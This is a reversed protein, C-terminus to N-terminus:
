ILAGRGGKGLQKRRDRDRHGWRRASKPTSRKSLLNNRASPDTLSQSALTWLADALVGTARRFFPTRSSARREVSFPRRPKAEDEVSAEARFVPPCLDVGFDTRRHRAHLLSRRFCNPLPPQTVAFGSSKWLMEARDPHNKCRSAVPRLDFAKIARQSLQNRRAAIRVTCFDRSPICSGSSIATHANRTRTHFQATRGLASRM